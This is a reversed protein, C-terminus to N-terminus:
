KGMVGVTTLGLVSGLKAGGGQQLREWIKFAAGGEFRVVSGDVLHIILVDGRLVAVSVQAPNILTGVGNSDVWSVM